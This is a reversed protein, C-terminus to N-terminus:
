SAGNSNGEMLEWLWFTAEDGLKGIVRGGTLRSKSGEGLIDGRAGTNQMLTSDPLM